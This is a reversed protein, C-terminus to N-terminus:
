YCFIDILESFPNLLTKNYKAHSLYADIFDSVCDEMTSHKSFISINFEEEFEVIFRYINEKNMISSLEILAERIFDSFLQQGLEPRNRKQTIFKEELGIYLDSKPNTIHSLIEISFKTIFENVNVINLNYQLSLFLSLKDTEKFLTSEICYGPHQYVIGNFNSHIKLQKSFQIATDYTCFDKDLICVLKKTKRFFQNLLRSYDDIKDKVKDRGRLHIGVFNSNIQSKFDTSIAIDIIFNLREIDKTGEAFLVSHCSNLKEISLIIGGLDRKINDFDSQVLPSLVIEEDYSNNLYFLEGEVAESVFHDNHSIVFITCNEYNRLEEVLSGQLKGHLHSDPEDILVVNMLSETIGLTSFIETAQILGSGQSYLDKSRKDIEVEIKIYEDENSRHKNRYHFEVEKSLAKSVKNNLKLFNDEIKHFRVLKNRLIEYSKGQSIKKQIQGLNMFPENKIVNSIPRTQYISIFKDLKLKSRNMFVEFKKFSEIDKKSCRFYANSISSPKKILFGLEFLESKDAFVLSIEITGRSNFLDYDNAIRLFDLENYNIHKEHSNYFTTAKKTTYMNYCHRWLQIAEFITTKGSNNEGIIISFDSQVKIKLHKFKKFNRIKIERIEM